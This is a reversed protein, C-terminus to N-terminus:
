LSNFFLTSKRKEIPPSPVKSLVTIKTRSEPIGINPILRPRKPKKDLTEFSSIIGAISLIM